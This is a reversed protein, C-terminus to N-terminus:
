FITQQKEHTKRAVSSLFTRRHIISPGFQELAHYHITTGYGKHKSLKYNPFLKDFENMLADRTVKAVISAAAITASWTEGKPFHHFTPTNPELSIKTLPMADSLINIIPTTKKPLASYLSFLAMKMGKLTAQYINIKDIEDAPIIASSFICKKQIWSFAKLRNEESLIKSDKLLEFTTYQPLIVASVVVPGALCGRGAEDLGIAFGEQEWASKEFFNHNITIKSM